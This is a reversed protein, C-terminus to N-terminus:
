QKKVSTVILTNLARTLEEAKKFNSSKKSLLIAAQLAHKQVPLSFAQQSTVGRQTALIMHIHGTTILFM